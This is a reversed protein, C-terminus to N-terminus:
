PAGLPLQDMEMVTAAHLIPCRSVHDDSLTVGESKYLLIARDFSDRIDNGRAAGSANFFAISDDGTAVFTCREVVDGSTPPDDPQGIQPGGEPTSLAPTQGDVAPGRQVLCDAVHVRDLGGRFVGRSRGVWEVNEFAVDSGGMLWYVNGTPKSKIALLDGPKWPPTERKKTLTMRWRAGGLAAAATWAYQTETGVLQPDTRSDTYHRLFRGQGSEENFLEKPTPFGAQLDMVVEGPAVSVVHGQSVTPQKSAMRMAAFSVHFVQRGYIWNVGRDFVLTTADRGAGAIVLRGRDGPHIGSVDIAGNGSTASSLDFTGAPIRIVFVDDPRKAFDAKAAGIAATITAPTVDTLAIGASSTTTAAALLLALM